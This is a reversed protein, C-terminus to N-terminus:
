SVTAQFRPEDRISDFDHDDRAWSKARTDGACARELHDLSGRTRRGIRPLLRAPLPDSSPGAMRRVRGVRTRDSPHLRRRPLPARGRVLIRLGVSAAAPRCARRGRGRDDRARGRRSRRVGVPIYMLTGPAVDIAEDDVTFTARGTVVLYLEDHGGAGSSTEDHPEILPDGAAPASYANVGFARVRARPPRPPSGHGIPIADIESLRAVRASSHHETM